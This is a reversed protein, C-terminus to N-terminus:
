TRRQFGSNPFNDGDRLHHDQATADPLLTAALYEIAQAVADAHGHEAAHFSKSTEGFSGVTKITIMGM